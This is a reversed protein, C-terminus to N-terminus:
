SCIAGFKRDTLPQPFIGGDILRQADWEASGETKWTWFIRHLNDTTVAIHLFLHSLLM